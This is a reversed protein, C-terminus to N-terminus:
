ASFILEAVEEGVLSGIAVGMGGLRAGIVMRSSIREIIPEKTAGFAMIGSWEQNIEFAQNPLIINRLDDILRKKILENIGFANTTEQKLDLNRGGGFIVKEEFNRFYFYGEDYHFTGEFRVPKEPTLALVMGRGPAIDLSHNPLLEKTFANTCIAIQNGKFIYDGAHISVTNEEEQFSDVSCGTFISVGLASCYKWLSDMLRGTDLQGEFPNEILHATNGFGFSSIKEDAKRFVAEKFFHLLAENIEELNQLCTPNQEFLLEYGGNQQLDITARGLRQSTKQLGDWRRAVLDVMGDKGLIDLDNLLETVSGFCAFGANKTSAGSPLVGAELVAVRLQPDQEKLSAAASLGTIGAGVIIIDYSLFSQREWISINKM